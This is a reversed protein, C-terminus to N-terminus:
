LLKKIEDDCKKLGERFKKHSNKGCQISEYREDLNSRSKPALKNTSTYLRYRLSCHGSLWPKYYGVQFYGINNIDITVGCRLKVVSSGNWQFSTYKGYLDSEM